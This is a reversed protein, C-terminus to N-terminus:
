PLQLSLASLYVSLSLLELFTKLLIGKKFLTFGFYIFLQFTGKKLIKTYNNLIKALLALWM